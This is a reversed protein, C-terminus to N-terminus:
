ALCTLGVYDDSATIVISAGVYHWTVRNPLRQVVHCHMRLKLNAAQM